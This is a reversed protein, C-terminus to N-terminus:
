RTLRELALAFAARKLSIHKIQAQMIMSNTARMLIMDLMNNVEKESWHEGRLNQQWEFCSVIVGGANAVIDPLVTVGKKDLYAEAEQTIPGNALEVIMRARVEHMNQDTVADELAALVLVDAQVGVIDTSPLPKVDKLDALDEPRPEGSAAHKSVDIGDPKHWTHKSNAVAVLKLQPYERLTNAFHYGVNGFGQLAITLPQDAMKNHKLLQLLAIVGGRGTAANRGESGGQGVPKGTFAAADRQGKVRALEDTMWDMIQANTNVDPAPVDRDSGIHPALQRAYDRSLEELEAQSLTAPDVIVGGKGGGLPLGVAACKFTMLTALARVEDLSVNRHFRIGGKYPGLTNKHQVRYAPFKKGGATVEFMHEYDPVLLEQAKAESIDADQAAQRIAAQATALMSNM